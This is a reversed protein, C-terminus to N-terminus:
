GEKILFEGHANRYIVRDDEMKSIATSGRRRPVGARKMLDANTRIGPQTRITELLRGMVDEITSDEREEREAAIASYVDSPDADSFHGSMGDYRCAVNGASGGSRNKPVCIWGFQGSKNVEFLQMGMIVEADYELRGSQKAASLAMYKDPKGTTKDMVNYSQRNVATICLIPAGTDQACHSVEGSIDGMVAWQERSEGAPIMLQLYDIIVLPPKGYKQALEEIRSRLVGVGGFGHRDSAYFPIHLSMQVTDLLEERYEGCRVKIWPLPRENTSKVLTTLRAFLDLESLELSLYMAPNGAESHRYAWELALSSKGMGPPAGLLTVAGAPAGGGLMRNLGDMPSPAPNFGMRIRRDIELEIRERLNGRDQIVEAKCIGVGKVVGGGRPSGMGSKMGCKVVSGVDGHDSAYGSKNAVDLATNIATQESLEGGAVLQGLKYAARNLNWNRKGVEDSSHERVIGAAASLGYVSDAREQVSVFRVPVESLREPPGLADEIDSASYRINNDELITVLFVDGADKQHLFGPVRLVRSADTAAMDGGYKRAMARCMGVGWAVDDSMKDLVYYYHAGNKTKVVMTPDLPLTPEGGGDVDIWVARCQTIYKSGRKDHVNSNNIEAFIGCGNKQHYTLQESVVDYSGWLIGMGSGSRGRRDKDDDLYAWKVPVQPGGVLRELFIETEMESNM